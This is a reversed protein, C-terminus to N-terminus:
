DSLIMQLKIKDFRAQRWLGMVEGAPELLFAAILPAALTKEPECILVYRPSEAEDLRAVWDLGILRNLIPGIQLPDIHLQKSLEEVPLGRQESSRSHALLRLIGLALQFAAGAVDAYRLMGLKLSPAYAAIVAGVLFISWSLFVWILLIPVTAFAGYIIAYTPVTSLYWGLARKALEFGVMAVVAGLLAHRWRVYTNPVFRFLATLGFTLLLFQILSLLFAVGGPLASVWGKSASVAYSTLSLSGGLLLPGLTAAAWYLVMRSGFPRPKRVRWIANLTRDITLMLSQVSIMLFVIGVAGVGQAKSSFQTLSRLVPRAIDEPILRRLFYQELASQFAGFMPFAAFVALMVTLLPVLSILTTFTLSGATLGLRDERFRLHLTSFMDRWPWDEIAIASQTLKKKIRSFIMTTGM